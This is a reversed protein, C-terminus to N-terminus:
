PPSDSASAGDDDVVPLTAVFSGNDGYYHSANAGEATAGDGFQWRFLVISGDPDHSGAGSFSITELQNAVVDPGAGAVPPPTTPPVPLSHPPRPPPPRAM